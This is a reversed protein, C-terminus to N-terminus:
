AQPTRSRGTQTDDLQKKYGQCCEVEFAIPGVVPRFYRKKIRIEVSFVRFVSPHERSTHIYLTYTVAERVNEGVVIGYGTGSDM